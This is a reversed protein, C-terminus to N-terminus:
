RNDPNKLLNIDKKLSVIEETADDLDNSISIINKRAHGIEIVIKAIFLLMLTFGSIVFFVHLDM